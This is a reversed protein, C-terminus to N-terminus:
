AVYVGGQARGSEIDARTTGAPYLTLVAGRPDGQIHPVLGRAEALARVADSACCDPCRYGKTKRLSPPAWYTGCGPADPQSDYHESVAVHAPAHAAVHALAAARTAFRPSATPPESKLHCLCHVTFFKLPQAGCPSTPRIGDDAPWYGSCQAEALRHLTSGLRMFRRADDASVGLRALSAAVNELHKQSLKM